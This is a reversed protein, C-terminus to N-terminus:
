IAKLARRDLTRCAARYALQRLRAMGSRHESIGRFKRTFRADRVGAAKKSHKPAHDTLIEFKNINEM